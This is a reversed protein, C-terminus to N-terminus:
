LYVLKRKKGAVSCRFNKYMGIAFFVYMATNFIDHIIWLSKVLDNKGISYYFSFVLATAPTYLILGSVYWFMPSGHDPTEEDNLLGQLIFVSIWAVYCLNAVCVLENLFRHNIGYWSVIMIAFVLFLMVSVLRIRKFLPIYAPKYFLRYIIVFEVPTYINYLTNLFNGQHMFETLVQPVIAAIVLWFVTKSATSLQKFWLLGALFPIVVSWISLQLTFYSLHNM